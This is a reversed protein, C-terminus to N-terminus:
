CFIHDQYPLPLNDKDVFYITKATRHGKVTIESAVAGLWVSGPNQGLCVGTDPNSGLAQWGIALVTTAHM